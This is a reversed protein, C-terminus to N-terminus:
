VRAATAAGSQSQLDAADIRPRENVRNRCSGEISLYASAPTTNFGLCPRAAPLIPLEARYAGLTPLRSGSLM